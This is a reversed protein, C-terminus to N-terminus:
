QAARAEKVRQLERLFRSVKQAERIATNRQAQPYVGHVKPFFVGTKIVWGKRARVVRVEPCGRDAVVYERIHEGTVPSCSFLSKM